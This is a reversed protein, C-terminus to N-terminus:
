AEIKLVDIQLKNIKKVGKSLKFQGVTEPCVQVTVTTPDAATM